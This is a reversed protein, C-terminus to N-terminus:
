AQMAWRQICRKFADVTQFTGSVGLADVM